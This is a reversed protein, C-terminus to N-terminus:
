LIDIDRLESFVFGEHEVMFWCFEKFSDFEEDIEYEDRFYEIIKDQAAKLSQATVTKLRNVDGDYVAYIYTTM